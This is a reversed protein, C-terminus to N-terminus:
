EVSYRTQDNHPVNNVVAATHENTMVGPPELENILTAILPANTDITIRSTAVNNITLKRDAADWSDPDDVLPPLASDDVDEDNTEYTSVAQAITNIPAHDTTANTM